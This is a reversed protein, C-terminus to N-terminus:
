SAAPGVLAFGYPEKAARVHAMDRTCRWKAGGHGDDLDCRATRSGVLSGPAGCTFIGYLAVGPLRIRRDTM